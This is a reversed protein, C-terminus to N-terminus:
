HSGPSAWRRPSARGCRAGGRASRWGSSGHAARAPPTGGLRAVGALLISSLAFTAADFAFAWSPEGVVLLATGLLPGLFTTVQKVAGDLANAAAADGEGVVFSIGATFAPRYPTALVYVLLVLVLVAGPSGDAAVLAALGLMLASRTVDLVVVLVRRDFRDAVVGGAAGLVVRPGLRALAALAILRTGDPRGLLWVLLGVWFVADGTSSLGEATLM